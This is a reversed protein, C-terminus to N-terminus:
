GFRQMQMLIRRVVGILSVTVTAPASLLKLLISSPLFIRREVMDSTLSGARATIKIDFLIEPSCSM